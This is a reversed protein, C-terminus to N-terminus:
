MTTTVNQSRAACKSQHAFLPAQQECMPRKKHTTLMLARRSCVPVCILWFLLDHNCKSRTLQVLSPLSIVCMLVHDNCAFTSATWHDNRLLWYLTACGIRDHLLLYASENCTLLDHVLTGEDAHM